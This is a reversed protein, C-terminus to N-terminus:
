GGFVIPCCDKNDIHRALGALGGGAPESNETRMHIAFSRRPKGSRNPPSGHFVLNHHLSAAGAPMTALVEEWHEGEPLTIDEKQLELDEGYFDGQNLLGWRHSGRVFIMPGADPTVDSVAVWATFLESGEKWIKWYQKDQHWGVGVSKCDRTIASPKHLLQVWWVQVMRAGTIESVWKGLDPHGVLERIALNAIQPMEIKGLKHPDDGPSWYSSEPPHGTEYEGAILADMGKSARIVLEAPIIPQSSITYGDAQYNGSNAM